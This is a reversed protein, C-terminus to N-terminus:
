LRDGPWGARRVGLAAGGAQSYNRYGHARERGMSYYPYLRGYFQLSYYFLLASLFPVKRGRCARVVAM